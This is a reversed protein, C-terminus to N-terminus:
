LEGSTDGGVPIRPSWCMCNSANSSSIENPIRKVVKASSSMPLMMNIDEEQMAIVIDKTHLFVRHCTQNLYSLLALHLPTSPSSQNTHIISHFVLNCCVLLWSQTHCTFVCQSLLTSQTGYLVDGETESCHISPLGGRTHNLFCTVAHQSIHVNSQNSIQIESQLVMEIERDRDDRNYYPATALQQTWRWWATDTATHTQFMNSHHTGM